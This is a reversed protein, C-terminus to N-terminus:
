ILDLPTVGEYTFPAEVEGLKGVEFDFLTLDDFVVDHFAMKECGHIDPDDLSVIITFRPTIGKRVKELIKRCLKSDRKYFTASGKCEISAIKYGKVMNGCEQIEEKSYEDKAQFGKLGAVVEDDIWLKGWNGLIAQNSKM